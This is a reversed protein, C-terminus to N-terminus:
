VDSYSRVTVGVRWSLYTYGKHQGIDLVLDARCHECSFPISLSGGNWQCEDSQFPIGSHLNDNGCNPCKLLAGDPNQDFDFTPVVELPKMNLPIM